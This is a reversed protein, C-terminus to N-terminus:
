VAEAEVEVFFGHLEMESRLGRFAPCFLDLSRWGCQGVLKSDCSLDYSGDSGDGVACKIGCDAGGYLDACFVGVEDEGDDVCGFGKGGGQAVCFFLEGTGYGDPEDVAFPGAVGDVFRM